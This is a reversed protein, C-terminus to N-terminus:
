RHVQMLRAAATSELSPGFWVFHQEILGVLSSKWCILLVYKAIALRIKGVVSRFVEWDSVRRAQQM